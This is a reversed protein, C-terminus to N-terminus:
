IEGYLTLTLTITLNSNPSPKLDPPLNRPSKKRSGIFIHEHFPTFNFAKLLSNKFFWISAEVDNYVKYHM